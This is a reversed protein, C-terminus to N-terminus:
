RAERSGLRALAIVTMVAFFLFTVRTLLDLNPRPRAQIVLVLAALAAACLGVRWNSGSLIAWIIWPAFGM